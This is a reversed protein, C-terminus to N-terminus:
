LALSDLSRSLRLQRHQHTPIGQAEIDQRHQHQYTANFYSMDIVFFLYQCLQFTRDTDNVVVSYAHAVKMPLYQM